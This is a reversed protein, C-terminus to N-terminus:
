VNRENETCQYMVFTMFFPVGSSVVLMTKRDAYQTVPSSSLTHSVPNLYSKSQASVYGGCFGVVVLTAAWPWLQRKRGERLNGVSPISKQSTLRMQTLAPSGDFSKPLFTVRQRSKFM